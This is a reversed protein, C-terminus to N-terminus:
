APVGREHRRQLDVGAIGALHPFDAHPTVAVADRGLDPTFHELREKGSFWGALACPEAQRDGVVDDRLLVAARDSDIALDPFVALERYPHRALHERVASVPRSLYPEPRQRRTWPM